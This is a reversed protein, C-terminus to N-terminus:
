SGAWGKTTTPSSCSRRASAWEQGMFLLPTAATTLLLATAARYTAPDVQHNLREGLARNGIRDHNQIYFVFRRPALGAPDTGRHYGRYTSFEGTFLWGRNITRVLDAVLGRFDRFAGECDGVLYRRLEHHFDDSWLADLGWGGESETRVMAALNRPDEAILHVPRDPVSRRSTAALEALFPRPGEDFLYHTADLRLGDMHYEHLWCLANEIFFARVMASHPGDLNIAPGWLTKHRSSFYSPSFQALYNGDPGLHNYVVDLLVALGLRHAEDVLRRLDDPTGYCRAPAFLDVGDYGWNRRGPFDAVPMLEIATVGLEAVRPLLRTAGEFTGEPSFTGVHLEYLILEAPDVGRWSADTWVFADPDVVQSPGHVGEPQYRSAPDPFPGLGDVRYRYRAGAGLGPVLGGFTGDPHKELAIARPRAGPGELVVEVGLRDPAWVRFWVGGADADPRAGLSARWSMAPGAEHRHDGPSAPDPQAVAAARALRDARHERRRHQGPRQRRLDRRRQQPDGGVARRPVGRGPLQPARRAHLQLRRAVLDGESSGKRLFCLVGWEARTPTSGPSATPDATSSTCPRSPATSPTSTASGASSVAIASTTRAPGLRPEDDYDWEQWQGFEDGMFILKKGPLAYMYGFLLRLNACKQWDDGPMKALLSGKGKVVEDHSLPLLYNENFAYHMRFLLKAYAEHRKPPELTMYHDLTDHVWGLDWKLDFGLGGIGVPRTVNPRSTSDEAITLVGPYAEHVKRNFRQLFSIAELNEVGGFKNPAWEGPERGFDLRIMAEIGDVRLGDVHYKDLWFLANALLFNVVQPSEYNFAYTNWLAIKRKRRDTTSTSTAHRRVRRPRPPRQRLPRPGLRRIVGIGRRHLTDFLSMLDQPTGYRGSAAYYGVMQYGWSKRTPHDAVPMLEVHTYGMDAVYDALKPAIERYTLPRNANEPDRMWSGLHVEYIAIPATLSQRPVRHAMWDADGWTFDSLDWVKSATGPPM